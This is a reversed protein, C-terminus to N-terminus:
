TVTLKKICSCSEGQTQEHKKLLQEYKQAITHLREYEEYAIIIKAHVGSM